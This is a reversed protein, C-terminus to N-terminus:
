RTAVVTRRDAHVDTGDPRCLRLKSRDLGGMQWPRGANQSPTAIGRLAQGRRGVENRSRHLGYASRPYQKGANGTSTGNCSTETTTEHTDGPRVVGCNNSDHRRSKRYRQLSHRGVEKVTPDIAGIASSWSSPVQVRRKVM